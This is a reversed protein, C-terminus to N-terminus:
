QLNQLCADQDSLYAMASWYQKSNHPIHFFLLLYGVIYAKHEKAPLVLVGDKDTKGTLENNNKDKLVVAYDAKAKGSSDTVTITYYNDYTALNKGTPLTLTVKDTSTSKSVTVTKGDKDTVKVNVTSISYGGGGGSSGGSSSSGGGGSTKVPVTIQGNANTNASKETTKDKVTVNVNQAPKSDKDLVTVTTQNSPTTHFIMLTGNQIGIQLLGNM